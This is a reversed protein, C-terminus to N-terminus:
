RGPSVSAVYQRRGILSPSSGISKAHALGILTAVPSFGVRALLWRRRLIEEYLSSATGHGAASDKLIGVAIHAAGKIQDIKGEAELERDDLM